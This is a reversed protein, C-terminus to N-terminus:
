LGRTMMAQTARSYDDVGFVTYDMYTSLCDRQLRYTNNNFMWGKGYRFISLIVELRTLVSGRQKAVRTHAHVNRSDQVSYHHLERLLHGYQISEAFYSSDM